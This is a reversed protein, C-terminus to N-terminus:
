KCFHNKIQIEGNLHIAEFYLNKNFVPSNEPLEGIRKM